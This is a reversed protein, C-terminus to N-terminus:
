GIPIAFQAQLRLRWDKPVITRTIINAGADLAFSSVPQVNPTTRSGTGALGPNDDYNLQFPVSMIAALPNALDQALDAADQAHAAGGILVGLIAWRLPKGTHVHRGM